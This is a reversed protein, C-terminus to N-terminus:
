ERVEFPIETSISQGNLKTTVVISWIGPTTRSGVKWSWTVDGNEGATQSGLGAAQSAGSKYYVTITCAAGPITNITLRSTGGPAIPSTLSVVNIFLESPQYSTPQVIPPAYPRGQKTAEISYENGDTTVIITGNIDTGYIIAGVSTLADLTEPHPHGYDNGLGASYIAVEPQVATLFDLPSSSRSGHHAVKLITASIDLGSALMIEEAAPQTDGTFLFSVKGYVLRLVLSGNNLDDDTNSIPSLVDFNLNGLLITDGHKVEVYEAKSAIIADLFHEYTLTTNMVGNTVVKDVPITNLVQVLGGIHDENPHTAVIMNLHTIGLSQLYQAIGSDTEGGDILGTEGGSAQVLIADGQGVNIFHIRLPALTTPKIQQTPTLPQPSETYPLIPTFSPTESPIIVTLPLSPQLSPIEVFAETTETISVSQLSSPSLAIAFFTICAIIVLAFGGIGILIFVLNKNKKTIRPPQNIFSQEKSQKINESLNQSQKPIVPSPLIKSETVMLYKKVSYEPHSTIKKYVFRIPSFEANKISVLRESAKLTWTGGWKLRMFEGLYSGWINAAMSIANSTKEDKPLNSLSQYAQDLLNELKDISQDSFDLEQGFKEKASRIAYDAAAKMESNIDSM